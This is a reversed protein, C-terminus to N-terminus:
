PTVPGQRPREDTARGLELADPRQEGTRALAVACREDDAAGGADALGRQEVGRGDLRGLV